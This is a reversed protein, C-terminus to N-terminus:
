RIGFVLADEPLRFPQIDFHIWFFTHHVHCALLLCLRTEFNLVITHPRLLCLAFRFLMRYFLCAPAAVTCWNTSSVCPCFSCSSRSDQSWGCCWVLVLCVKNMRLVLSFCFWLHLQWVSPLQKGTQQFHSFRMQLPYVQCGCDLTKWHDRFEPGTNESRLLFQRDKGLDSFMGLPFLAMLFGGCRQPMCVWEPGSLSSTSPGVTKSPCVILSLSSPHTVRPFQCSVGVLLATLSTVLLGRRLGLLVPVCSWTGWQVLNWLPLCLVGFFQCQPRLHGALVSQKM